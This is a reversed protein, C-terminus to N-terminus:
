ILSVKVPNPKPNEVQREDHDGVAFRDTLLGVSLKATRLRLGFVSFRLGFYPTRLGFDATRLVCLWRRARMLCLMPCGSPMVQLISLPHKSCTNSPTKM